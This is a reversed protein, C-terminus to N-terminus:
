AATNQRCDILVKLVSGQRAMELATEAKEFEVKASILASLPLEGSGLLEVAEEHSCSPGRRLSPVVPVKSSPASDFPCRRLFPVKGSRSDM